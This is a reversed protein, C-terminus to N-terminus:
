LTQLKAVVLGLSSPRQALRNKLLSVILDNM